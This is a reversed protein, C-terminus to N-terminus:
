GRQRRITVNNERKSLLMWGFCLSHTSLNIFGCDFRKPLSSIQELFCELDLRTSVSNTPIDAEEGVPLYLRLLSYIRHGQHGNGAIQVSADMARYISDTDQAAAVVLETMHATTIAELEVVLLLHDFAYVRVDARYTAEGDNDEEV